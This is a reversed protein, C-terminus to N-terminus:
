GYDFIRQREGCKRAWKGESERGHFRLEKSSVYRSVAHIQDFSHSLAQRRRPAEASAEAAGIHSVVHVIPQHLAPEVLDDRIRLKALEQVSVEIAQRL